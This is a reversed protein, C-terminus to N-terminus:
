VVRYTVTHTCSKIKSILKGKTPASCEIQTDKKPLLVTQASLSIPSHITWLIQRTFRCRVYTDSVPRLDNWPCVVTKGLDESKHRNLINKKLWAWLWWHRKEIRRKLHKIQSKVSNLVCWKLIQFGCRCTQLRFLMKVHKPLHRKMDLTKLTMNLNLNFCNEDIKRKHHTLIVTKERWTPVNPHGHMGLQRGRQPSTDVLSVVFAGRRSCRFEEGINVKNLILQSFIM